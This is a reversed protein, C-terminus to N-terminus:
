DVHIYYKNFYCSNRIHPPGDSSKKDSEYHKSKINKSTPKTIKTKKTCKNSCM